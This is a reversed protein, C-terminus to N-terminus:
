TRVASSTGPPGPVGHLLPTAPSEIPRVPYVPRVILGGAPVTFAPRGYVVTCATFLAIFFAASWYARVTAGNLSCLPVFVAIWLTDAAVVATRLIARPRFTEPALAPHGRTPRM